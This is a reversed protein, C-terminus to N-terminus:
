KCGRSNHGQEGCRSCKYVRKSKSRERHRLRQRCAEGCFDPNPGKAPYVRCWVAGCARCVCEVPNAKYARERRKRALRYGRQKVEPQHAHALKRARLKDLKEGGQEYVKRQWNRARLRNFLADYQKQEKKARWDALRQNKGVLFGRDGQFRGEDDTV